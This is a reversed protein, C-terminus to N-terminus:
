PREEQERLLVSRRVFKHGSFISGMLGNAAEISVLLASYVHHITFAMFLFMVFYHAERLYQINILRPLWGFMAVLPGSGLLWQYLAFGTLIQVFMLAYVLLYMSAALPNHGVEDPAVWRLFLYYKLMQGVGRRQQRTTPVFAKWRAYVNGVFFWYMRLLFACTFVFATVEHIFRVTALTYEGSRSSVAVFPSHLYWGTISLLVMSLFITWHAVRVPIQWVYVRIFPDGDGRGEQVPTPSALRPSRTIPRAAVAM